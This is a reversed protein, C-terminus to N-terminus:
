DKLKKPSIEIGLSQGIRELEGFSNYSYTSSTNGLTTSELLGNSSNRTLLMDGAQTLLGDNDYAMNVCNTTNVCLKTLWFNNDYDMSLSGSIDGSWNTDLVQVSGLM